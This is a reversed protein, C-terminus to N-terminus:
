GEKWVPHSVLDVSLGMRTYFDDIPMDQSFLEEMEKRWLNKIHQGYQLSYLFKNIAFVVSAVRKANVNRWKEDKKPIKMAIAFERNWLRGHHACINRVYTFTHLWSKLVSSHIGFYRAVAIQDERLLNAFLLSLSSFSMIEVAMWLPIKPFSKYTNKYHTIFREQSREAEEHVKAIWETHNFRQFFKSADEHAFAGYKHSLYYAIRSRLAIEIAELSEDILFRLLRDFEYLKQVQEFYVDPKFKHRHEEFPICYASFRYYNVHTLFREAEERNNIILGRSSLLDIQEQYTLPPKSYERM